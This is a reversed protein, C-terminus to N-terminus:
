QIGYIENLGKRFENAGGRSPHRVYKINPYEPKLIFEATRGVSYVEKIDFYELLMALVGKGM